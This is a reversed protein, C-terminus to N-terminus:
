VTLSVQEVSGSCLLVTKSDSQQGLGGGVSDAAVQHYQCADNAWTVSFTYQVYYGAALTGSERQVGDVFVRYSVTSTLHGSYLSLVIRGSRSLAALAVVALVVVLAVVIVVM